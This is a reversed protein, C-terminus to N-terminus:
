KIYYVVTITYGLDNEGPQVSLSPAASKADSSVGQDMRAMPVIGGFGAGDHVSKIGAVRFGLNTASQEAKARADRTAQDRAKNELNKRMTNSFQAQPSVSGTPATTTLYDQVKQALQRGSVTVTLSLNYTSTDSSLPASQIYYRNDYGSTNLKIKSPAVGAERLKKVLEDSKTSAEDVSVQNDANTFTYTPYFVYEDPEAKLTSQGTVEITRGESQASAEWPRWLLLMAVIVALLILTILRLDLSINLKNNSQRSSYEM